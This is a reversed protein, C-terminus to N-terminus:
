KRSRKLFSSSLNENIKFIIVKMITAKIITMSDFAGTNGKIVKSVIGMWRKYNEKLLKKKTSLNLDDKKNSISIKEWM